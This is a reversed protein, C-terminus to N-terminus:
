YLSPRVEIDTGGEAIAPLIIFMTLIATWISIGVPNRGRRVGFITYLSSEPLLISSFFPSWPSEVAVSCTWHVVFEVEKDPFHSPHFVTRCFRYFQDIQASTFWFSSHLLYWVVLEWIDNVGCLPTGWLCRRFTHSSKAVFDAIMALLWSIFTGIISCAGTEGVGQMDDWFVSPLGIMCAHFSGRDFVHDLDAQACLQM